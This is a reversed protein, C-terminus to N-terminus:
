FLEKMLMSEYNSIICKVVFCGNGLYEIKEKLFM